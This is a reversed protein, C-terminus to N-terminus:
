ALTKTGRTGGYQSKSDMSSKRSVPSADDRIVKRVAPYFLEETPLPYRYLPYSRLRYSVPIIWEHGHPITCLLASTELDIKPQYHLVFERQELSHRLAQEVSQRAVAAFM